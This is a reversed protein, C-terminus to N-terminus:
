VVMFPRDHIWQSLIYKEGGTVPTAAHLSMMDPKGDRQSAFYIGDGARGKYRYGAKPFELDGGGYGDNLYMLFTVLRDGRYAGGEGYGHTGDYVFDYHARIEQGPAYHFIQPPEMHPPPLGTARAIKIRLLLLIVGGDLIDFVFDSCTRSALASSVGTTADRMLAPAFRGRGRGILWACLEPRAFCEMTWVRPSGCVQVPAPFAVFRELEAMGVPGDAILSLQACADESGRSAAQALLALAQEWSQPVDWVGAAALTAMACLADPEGARALEILLAVGERPAQAVGRGVLLRKAHETRAALEAGAM